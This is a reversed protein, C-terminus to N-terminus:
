SGRKRLRLALLTGLAVTGVVGFAIWWGSVGSPAPPAAPPPLTAAPTTTTTPEGARDGIRLISESTAVYLYGDPGVQLDTVIGDFTAVVGTGHASTFDPPRLTARHLNGSADGFYITSGPRDSRPPLLPDVTGTYFACGTPVIVQPFVLVPDTFGAQGGPGLRIPWGYNGGARILNVEDDTAPGNETEWLDGNAPNFCLGFSNRIGLAFVPNAPGFPNDDPISGDPNLRLVKGGLDEVDQARAPQHAEGTVLYLKGDPGFTMDGGNHYGNVTPLADLLAEHETGVNGDARMRVLRNLGDTFDSYYVYVWPESPFRPDLALGLLGTENAVLAVPLTAFPESLLRGGEIIRVRGTDKENFFLRGDPAFAMNTPFALGTAVPRVLPDARGPAPVLLLSLMVLAVPLLRRDM